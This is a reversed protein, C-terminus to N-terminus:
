KGEKKVVNRVVMALGKVCTGEQCYADETPNYFPCPIEAECPCSDDGLDWIKVILEELTM